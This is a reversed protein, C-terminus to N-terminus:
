VYGSMRYIKDSYRYKFIIAQFEEGCDHLEAMFGRKVITAFPINVEQMIGCCICPVYEININYIKSWTNPDDQPFLLM